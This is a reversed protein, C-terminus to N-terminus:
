LSLPEGPAGEDGPVSGPERLAALYDAILARAEAEDQPAVLVEAVVGAQDGTLTPVDYGPVLRSRVMVHLGAAELLDHIAIAEFESTARHVVAVDRATRWPRPDSM